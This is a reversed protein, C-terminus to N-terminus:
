SADMLAMEVMDSIDIYTQDVEGCTFELHTRADNMARALSRMEDYNLKIAFDPKKPPVTTIEM